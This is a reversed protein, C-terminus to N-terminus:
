SAHMDEKTLDEYESLTNSKMVKRTKKAQGKIRMDFITMGLTSSHKLSKKTALLTGKYRPRFIWTFEHAIIKNTTENPTVKNLDEKHLIIIVLSTRGQMSM